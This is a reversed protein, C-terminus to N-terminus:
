TSGHEVEDKDESAKWTRPRCFYAELDEPRYCVFAGLRVFPLGKKRARILTAKSMPWQEIVDKERIYEKLKAM